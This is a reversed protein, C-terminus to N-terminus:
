LLRLSARCITYVQAAVAVSSHATANLTQRKTGGGGDCILLGDDRCVSYFAALGCWCLAYVTMSYHWRRIYRRLNSCRVCLVRHHCSQPAPVHYHTYAVSRLQRPAVVFLSIGLLLMLKFIVKHVYYINNM